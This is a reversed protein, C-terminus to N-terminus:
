DTMRRARVVMAWTGPGSALSRGGTVQALWLLYISLWSRSEHLFLSNWSFIFMFFHLVLVFMLWQPLPPFCGWWGGELLFKQPTRGETKSWTPSTCGSPSGEPEMTGVSGRRGGQVGCRKHIPQYTWLMMDRTLRWTKQSRKVAHGM